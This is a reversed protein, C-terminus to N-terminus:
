WDCFLKLVSPDRASSFISLLLEQPMPVQFLWLDPCCNKVKTKLPAQGQCIVLLMQSYWSTIGSRKAATNNICSILMITQNHFALLDFKAPFPVHLDMSDYQLHWYRLDFGFCSIKILLSVVRFTCKGEELSLLTRDDTKSWQSCLIWECTIIYVTSLCFCTLKLINWLGWFVPDQFSVARQWATIWEEVWVLSQYIKGNWSWWLGRFLSSLVCPQKCICSCVTLAEGGHANEGM